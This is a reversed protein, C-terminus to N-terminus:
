LQVVQWDEILEVSELLTNYKALDENFSGASSVYGVMM